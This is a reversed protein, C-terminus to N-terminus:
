RLVHRLYSCNADEMGIRTEPKRRHVVHSTSRLKSRMNILILLVYTCNKLAFTGGHYAHDMDLAHQALGM